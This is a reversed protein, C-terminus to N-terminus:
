LTTDNGGRGLKLVKENGWFVERYGNLLREGSRGRRWRRAVVLRSKAVRPEGIRSM